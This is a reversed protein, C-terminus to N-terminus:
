CACKDSVALYWIPQAQDDIYVQFMSYHDQRLEVKKGPNKAKIRQFDCFNCLRNSM